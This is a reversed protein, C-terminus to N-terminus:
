VMESFGYKVSGSPSVKVKLWLVAAEVQVAEFGMTLTDDPVRVIVAGAVRDLVSQVMTIAAFSLLPPVCLRVSSMVIVAGVGFLSGTM